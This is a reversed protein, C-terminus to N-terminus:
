KAVARVGRWDVSGTAVRVYLRRTGHRVSGSIGFSHTSTGPFIEGEIGEFIGPPICSDPTLGKEANRSVEIESPQTQLPEVVEFPVGIPPTVIGCGHRCRIHGGFESDLHRVVQEIENTVRRM